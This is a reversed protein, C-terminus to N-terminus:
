RTFLEILETFKEYNFQYPEVREGDKMRLGREGEEGGGMCVCM